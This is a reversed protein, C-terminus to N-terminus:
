RVTFYRTDNTAVTEGDADVANVFYVYEGPALVGPITYSTGDVELFDLIPNSSDNDKWSHLTYHDALPHAKWRLTVGKAPVVAHDAPAVVDVYCSAPQGEVDFDYHDASEGIQVGGANFAEVWWSYECTLLPDQPTVTPEVVEQSSLVSSGHEPMLAVEYTAAGPYAKWTLEPLGETVHEGDKPATLVLDFRVLPFDGIDVGEDSEIVLTEGEMSLTQAFVFSDTGADRVMLTYEGPAVDTFLYAGDQGTTTDFTEGECGSFTAVDECLRVAAGVVAEDNWIVRGELAGRGPAPAPGDYVLQEPPPPATTEASSPETTGGTPSQSVEGASTAGSPGGSKDDSGGCAALAATSLPIILALAVSRRM